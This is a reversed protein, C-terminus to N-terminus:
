SEVPTIFEEAIDADYDAAIFQATAKIFKKLDDIDKDIHRREYHTEDNGLWAVAKALTQIKPFDNLYNQIVPMLMKAKIADKEIPNKSIVYDKILFEAAKRYGVGAIKDLKESEAVTAQSYIEVFIESVKDINEPLEVQIPPRYEDPILKTLKGGIPASYTYSYSLSYYKQCNDATCNVMVALNGENNSRLYASFGSHVHPTMITGCHPCKNPLNISVEQNSDRFKINVEVSM